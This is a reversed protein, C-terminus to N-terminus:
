DRLLRLIDRAAGHRLLEAGASEVLHFTSGPVQVALYRGHDPQHLPNPDEAGYWFHTAARIRDLPLHWPRALLVLEDVYAQPGQRLGEDIVDTLEALCAPDAYLLADAGRARGRLLEVLSDRNTTALLYERLSAPAESAFRVMEDFPSPLAWAAARDGVEGAGAVVAVATVRDNLYAGCALAFAGGASHGSVAFSPWGLADALVAADASWGQLTPGTPSPDSGGYGPRDPVVLQVGEAALDDDTFASLRSGPAGHHHLVPFGDVPGYMAFRLVRGDALTIRDASRM